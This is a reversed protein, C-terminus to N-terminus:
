NKERDQCYSPYLVLIPMKLNATARLHIGSFGAVSRPRIL